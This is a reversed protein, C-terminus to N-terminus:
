SGMTGMAAMGSGQLGPALGPVFIVVVALVLAVVGAVKAFGAGHSWQKEIGVTAALLVMAVLNMVGFATLLLM